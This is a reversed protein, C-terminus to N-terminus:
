RELHQLEEPLTYDPYVRKFDSLQKRAEELKGQEVLERISAMWRDPTPQAEQELSQGAKSNQEELDTNEQQSDRDVTTKPEAAPVSKLLETKEGQETSEPSSPAPALNTIGSAAPSDKPQLQLRKAKSENQSESRIVAKQDAAPKATKPIESRPTFREVQTQGPRSLKEITTTLGVALILVAVLAAPVQWRGSFPGTGVIKKGSVANRAAQLITKDIAASPEEKKGLAYLSTLYGSGPLNDDLNQDRDTGM